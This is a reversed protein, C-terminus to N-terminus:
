SGKLTFSLILGAEVTDVALRPVLMEDRDAHQQMIRIAPLLLIFVKFAAVVTRAGTETPRM